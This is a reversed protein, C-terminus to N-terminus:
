VQALECAPRSHYQRINFCSGTVGTLCSMGSNHFYVLVQSFYCGSGTVGTLLKGGHIHLFQKHVFHFSPFDRRPM